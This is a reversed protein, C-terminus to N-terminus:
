AAKPTADLSLKLAERHASASTRYGQFTGVTDVAGTDWSIVRVSYLRPGRDRMGEYRESSVFYSVRNVSDLYFRDGIRSSFFRLTNPKFWHLGAEENVKRADDVCYVPVGAYPNKRVYTM